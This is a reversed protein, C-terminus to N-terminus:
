LYVMLGDIHSIPFEHLERMYCILLHPKIDPYSHSKYQLLFSRNTIFLRLKAKFQKIIQHIVLLLAVLYPM